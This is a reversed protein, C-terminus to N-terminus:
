NLSGTEWHFAFLFGEALTVSLCVCILSISDSISLLNTKAETTCSVHVNAFTVSNYTIYLLCLLTM